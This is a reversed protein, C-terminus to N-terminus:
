DISQFTLGLIKNEGDVLFTVSYENMIFVFPPADESFGEQLIKQRGEKITMGPNIGFMSTDPNRTTIKRIRKNFGYGISIDLADFSREYGKMCPEENAEVGNIIKYDTETLLKVGFVDIRTNVKEAYINKGACGTLALFLVIWSITFKNLKM